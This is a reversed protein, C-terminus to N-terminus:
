SIYQIRRILNQMVEASKYSAKGGIPRIKAGFGNKSIQNIILDNHTRTNNITLCVGNSDPGTRDEYIKTPWQQANRADANAFKIDDRTYEDQVGQFDKTATWRELAEKVIDPEARAPEGDDDTTVPATM